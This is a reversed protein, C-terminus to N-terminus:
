KKGFREIRSWMDPGAGPSERREFALADALPLDRGGAILQKTTQLTFWSSKAIRGAWEATAADLEEDPVSRNALGIRVAEEAEVARTSWMMDKAALEGVRRPLRQSMGWLPAMGWRGHTDAFRATNSCILLDCGLALELAGTYCHGRVSAIVPQPLAELAEITEANFTPSAPTEGGQMATLDNGASFSRGAGRLVVSGIVEPQTSLAVVHDRLEVFLGPSLANLVEPRNLTLTAVGGADERLVLDAM